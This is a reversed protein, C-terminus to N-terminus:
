HNCEGGHDSVSGAMMIDNSPKSVFVNMPDNSVVVGPLDDGFVPAITITPPSTSGTGSDVISPVYDIHQRDCVWTTSTWPYHTEMCPESTFTVECKTCYAEDCPACFEIIHECKHHKHKNKNLNIAM